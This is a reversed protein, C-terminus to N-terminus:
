IIGLTVKFPSAQALERDTQFHLALAARVSELWAVTCDNYCERMTPANRCLVLSGHETHAGLEEVQVQLTQGHSIGDCEEPAQGLEQLAGLPVVGDPGEARDFAGNFLSGILFAVTDAQKSKKAIFHAHVIEKIKRNVM